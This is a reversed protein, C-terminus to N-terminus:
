RDPQYASVLLRASQVSSRGRAENVRRMTVRATQLGLRTEQEIFYLKGAEVEVAVTASSEPATSLFTYSGPLLEWRFYTGPGTGGATNGNVSVQMQIAAGLARGPRYLYVVGKGEPATFQKAAADTEYPANSVNACGCLLSGVALLTFAFVSSLYPM